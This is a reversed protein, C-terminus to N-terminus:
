AAELDRVSLYVGDAARSLHGALDALTMPRYGTMASGGIISVDYCLIRHGSAAVGADGDQSGALDRTGATLREM